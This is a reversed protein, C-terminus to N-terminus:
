SNHLNFHRYLDSAMDLAATLALGHDKFHSPWRELVTECLQMAFEVQGNIESIVALRLWVDPDKWRVADAEEPRFPDRLYLVHAETIQRSPWRFRGVRSGMFPVARKSMRGSTTAKRMDFFTFGAKDLFADMDRFVPSEQYVPAFAVETQIGLCRDLSEPAGKLIQLEAGQVNLKMFDFPPIDGSHRWTDLDTVAVESESIVAMHDSLRHRDGHVLHELYALNPKYLSSAGDSKTHHLTVTGAAQGLATRIMQVNATKDISLDADPHPDFGFIRWLDTPWHAFQQEVTSATAGGDLINLYAGPKFSALVGRTIPPVKSLINESQVRSALEAQHILTGVRCSDHALIRHCFEIAKRDDTEYHILFKEVKSLLRPGPTGALVADILVHAIDPKGLKYAFFIGRDVRNPFLTRVLLAMNVLVRAGRPTKPDYGLNIANSLRSIDDEVSRCLAIFFEDAGTPDSQALTNIYRRAAEWDERKALDFSQPTTTETMM